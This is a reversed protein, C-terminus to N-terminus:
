KGGEPLLDDIKVALVNDNIKDAMFQLLEKTWRHGVFFRIMQPDMDRTIKKGNITAHDYVQDPIPECAEGPFNPCRCPDGEMAVIHGLIVLVTRGSRSVVEAIM